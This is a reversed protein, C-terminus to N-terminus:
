ERILLVEDLLGFDIFPRVKLHCFPTGKCEEVNKVLGVPIGKPYVGGGSTILVEGLPPAEEKLIFRIRCERGEGEMLAWRRGRQFQVGVYSNKDTILLVVATCPGVDVVKGVLGEREDQCGVVVMGKRVGERSGRDIIITCLNEKINYGVVKAMFYERKKRKTYHLIKRLRQNEFELERRASIEKHLAKIKEKLLLNERSLQRVGKAYETLACFGEKLERSLL